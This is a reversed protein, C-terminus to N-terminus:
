KKDKEDWKNFADRKEGLAVQLAKCKADHM